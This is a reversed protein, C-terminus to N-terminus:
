KNETRMGEEMELGIGIRVGAASNSCCTGIVTQVKMDWMYMYVCVCEREGEGALPQM